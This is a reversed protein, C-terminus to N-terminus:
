PARMNTTGNGENWNSSVVAVTCEVTVAFLIPATWPIPLCHFPAGSTGGTLTVVLWQM